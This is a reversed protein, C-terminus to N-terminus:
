FLQEYIKQVAEVHHEVTFSKEVHVRGAAGFAARTADDAALKGIALALAVSNMPPALLGTAGDIVIEPVGGADTGIVPKGCAMAEIAVRGFHEADSPLVFIDLANMVAPIDNRHGTFTIRDAAASSAAQAKIKDLLPGDGVIAFRLLAAWPAKDRALMDAAEVLYSHGKYAVVRGVAGVLIDDPGAGLSRRAELDPESPHFDLLDVANHVTTVKREFGKFRRFKAGTAVSNTIIKTYISFLLKDMMGESDIIRVHWVSPIGARGAALGAIFTGRTAANAHVIDINEREILKRMGTVALPVSVPALPSKLQPVDVFHYPIEMRIAESELNGREPLALVPSFRARDLNRILLLLSIEGGGRVNGCASLYLIRRPQM